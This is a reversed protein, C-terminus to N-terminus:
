YVDEGKDGVVKLNSCFYLGDFSLLLINQRIQRFFGLM